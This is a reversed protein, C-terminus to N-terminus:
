SQGPFAFFEAVRCRFDPLVDEGTLEQDETLVYPEQGPRYVTVTRKDPDVLWVLRTGFQLQQDIREQVEAPKDNPSLVEVALLPPEQAFRIELEEYSTVDEFLMIDPGRVTDPDREVVVGTDNTCIYGKKRQVTYIGLIRAINGCVFGHRKGPRPMEVIEGRILDCNRNWNEPSNAWDFFEEATM